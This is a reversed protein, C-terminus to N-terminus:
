VVEMCKKRRWKVYKISYGHMTYKRNGRRFEMNKDTRHM